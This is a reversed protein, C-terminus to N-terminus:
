TDSTTYTALSNFINQAIIFINWLRTHSFFIYFAIAVGIGM